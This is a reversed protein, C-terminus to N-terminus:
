LDSSPTNKPLVVLTTKQLPTLQVELFRHGPRDQMPCHHWEMDEEQKSLDAQHDSNTKYQLPGFWRKQFPSSNLIRLQLKVRYRLNFSLNKAGTGFDRGINTSSIGAFSRNFKAVAHCRCGGDGCRIVFVIDSTPSIDNHTCTQDHLKTVDKFESNIFVLAALDLFHGLIPNRGISRSCGPRILNSLNLFDDLAIDVIRNPNFIVSQDNLSKSLRQRCFIGDDEQVAIDVIPFLHQSIVVYLSYWM